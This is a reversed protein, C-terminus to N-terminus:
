EHILRTGPYRNYWAFWYIMHGPLRNLKKGDSTYIAEESIMWENDEADKLKGRKFSRFSVDGSEYARFAGNETSIVVVNSGSIRTQLLGKSTLYKRSIAVPDEQFKESRIIFVEDKNQLKDSSLPVPFMLADTAFYDQYAAGERYDRDYGTELSLVMTEPHITKWEGWTTTVVSYVDLEIGKGALPGLVPAGDITNWLSQTAVDYMLKNSRYLFGSTGLDHYDGEHHMDYAIVTGCLTCYVGAVRRDAFQDVVFEHWALIRRPYAKAVGNVYFGFVVNDEELYNAENASVMKPDRLPPIGDQVVGGWLIEDLR